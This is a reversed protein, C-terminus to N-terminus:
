GLKDKKMIITMQTAPKFAVAWLESLELERKALSQRGWVAFTHLSLSVRDITNYFGHTMLLFIAVMGAMILLAASTM